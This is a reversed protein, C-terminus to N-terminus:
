RGPASGQWRRSAAGTSYSSRRTAGYRLSRHTARASTRLTPLASWPMPGVTRERDDYYCGAVMIALLVEGRRRCGEVRKAFGTETMDAYEGPPYLEPAFLEAYLRETESRVLDELRIRHKDEALYRKATAVAM